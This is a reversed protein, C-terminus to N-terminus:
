FDLNIGIHPSMDPFKSYYYSRVTFIITRFNDFNRDTTENPDRAYLWGFGTIPQNFGDLSGYHWVPGEFTIVQSDSLGLGGEGVPTSAWDRLESIGASNCIDFILLGGEKLPITNNKNLAQKLNFKLDRGEGFLKNKYGGEGDIANHANMIVIDYLDGEKTMNNFDRHMENQYICGYDGWSDRTVGSGAMEVMVGDLQQLWYKTEEATVRASIVYILVRIIGQLVDCLDGSAMSFSYRSGSGGGGGGWTDFGQGEWFGRNTGGGGGGSEEDGWSPGPAQRLGMPDKFVIPNNGCYVYPNITLASSAMDKIPDCSMFRGLEKAYYRAHFYMLGGDDENGLYTYANGWYVTDIDQLPEGFSLYDNEVDSIRWM